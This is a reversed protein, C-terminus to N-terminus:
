KVWQITTKNMLRLLENTKSFHGGVLFALILRFLLPHSATLIHHKNSDILVAKNQPSDAGYYFSSEKEKKLYKEFVFMRLNNGDKKQHSGADRARVTM